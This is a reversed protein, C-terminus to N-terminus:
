RGFCVDCCEVHSRYSEIVIGISEVLILGTVKPPTLRMIIINNSKIAM